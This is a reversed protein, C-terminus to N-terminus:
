TTAHHLFNSVSIGTHYYALLGILIIFTMAYDVLTALISSIPIILRPFYIKKIINANNVM